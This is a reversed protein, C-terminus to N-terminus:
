RIGSHVAMFKCRSFPSWIFSRFSKHLQKACALLCLGSELPKWRFDTFIESELVNILWSPKTGLYFISLLTLDLILLFYIFSMNNVIEFHWSCPIWRWKDHLSNKTGWRCNLYSLMLLLEKHLVKLVTLGSDSFHFQIHFWAFCNWCKNM